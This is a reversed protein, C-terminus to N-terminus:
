HARRLAGSRVLRNGLVGPRFRNRLPFLFRRVAGTKAFLGFLRGASLGAVRTVMFRVTWRSFDFGARVMAAALIAGCSVTLGTFFFLAGADLWM